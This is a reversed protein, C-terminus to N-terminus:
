LRVRVKIKSELRKGRGWGWFLWTSGRRKELFYGIHSSPRTSNLPAERCSRRCGTPSCRLLSHHILEQPPLRWTARCCSLLAALHSVQRHGLPWKAKEKAKDKINLSFQCFWISGFWILHGALACLFHIWASIRCLGPSSILNKTLRNKLKLHIFLCHSLQREQGPSFFM